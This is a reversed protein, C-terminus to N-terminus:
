RGDGAELYTCLKDIITKLEEFNIFKGKRPLIDKPIGTMEFQGEEPFEPEIIGFGSTKKASFGYTLMTEKLACYILLIDKKIKRKQEKVPHGILDFPVYLLSFTGTAGKPVCEIYIPNKGTKTKRDHPNIVELDIQDFFTPYFHLTARRLGDRNTFKQLEAEFAKREKELLLSDFYKKEAENEHGFLKNIQLRIRQQKKPDQKLELLKGSTWRLNGKWSSGSVMPVKFVKDKKVPNDIIYFEEDDKSIYPKALTFKFKIFFSFLPLYSIEENKSETIAQYVQLVQNSELNNKIKGEKSYQERQLSIYKDRIIGSITKDEDQAAKIYLLSLLRWQSAFYPSLEFINKWREEIKENINIIKDKQTAQKLKKKFSIIQEQLNKIESLIPVLVALTTELLDYSM